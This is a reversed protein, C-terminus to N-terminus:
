QHNTFRKIALMSDLIGISILFGVNKIQRRAWGELGVRTFRSYKELSEVDVLQLLGNPDVLINHAFLLPFLNQTIKERVTPATPGSSGDFEFCTGETRLLYRNVQFLSKLDNITHIPLRFLGKRLDALPASDKYWTQVETYTIGTGTPTSHIVTQTPIVIRKSLGFDALLNAIIDRSDNNGRIEAEADAVKSFVERDSRIKSVKIVSCPEIGAILRHRTEQFLHRPGKFPLQASELEQMM